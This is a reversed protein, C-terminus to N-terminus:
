QFLVFISLSMRKIPTLSEEKLLPEIIYKKRQLM